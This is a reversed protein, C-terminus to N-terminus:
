KAPKQPTSTKTPAPAKSPTSHPTPALIYQKYYAILLATVPLAIIMGLIGLLSGWVSLSLLIIAPNLGLSKGMIKPTLLYDCICQSVVYVLICKGLESWFGTAGTLSDLYCLIVVPILTVYQVYPIMYLIGVIVGMVIALPLGAISFGISYFVAACAAIVAQSRFYRSMNDKIDDLIPYVKARYRPPVVKRFGTMLQRYDLMIFIVYIFTLLWEIAHMLTEITASLVSSGKTFIDAIQQPDLYQRINDLSFHSTIFEQLEPPFAPVSKGSSAKILTELQDIENIALPVVLCVLGGVVIITELLTLFVPIIRNKLKLKRQQFDVIPELVYAILCAVCFPLLVNRLYDVLWLLACIAAIAVIARVVQDFTIAKRQTM